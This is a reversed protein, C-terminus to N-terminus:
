QGIQDLITELSLLSGVIAVPTGVPCLTFLKDMDSNELAVCGDTWDVGKGGGGHIAISGGIETNIGIEGSAKGINFRRKDDDNPFNIELSKNYITASGSRRTIVSYLGEPTVRDGRQVKDGLWNIGLEVNFDDLIKGSKYVICKRSFKDVVLSVANNNRSWMKMEEDLKIWQPFSTFYNELLRTIQIKFGSIESKIQMLSANAAQMDSRNFALEIETFKLSMPALNKRIDINPPLIGALYEFYTLESGLMTISKEIHLSLENRRNVANNLAKKANEVALEALASTKEYDGSIFIKKSNSNWASIAEQWYMEALHLEECSYIEAKEMRAQVILRRGENIIEFPSPKLWPLIIGAVVVAVIGTSALIAVKIASYKLSLM